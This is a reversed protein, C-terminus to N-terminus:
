GVAALHGQGPKRNMKDLTSVFDDIGQFQRYVSAFRIFAVESMQKLEELVLEGIEASSV